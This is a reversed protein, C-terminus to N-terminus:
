DNAVRRENGPAVRLLFRQRSSGWPLQENLLYILPRAPGRPDHYHIEPVMGVIEIGSQESVRVVRGFLADGYRQLFTRNM